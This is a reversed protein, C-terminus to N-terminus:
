YNSVDIALMAIIVSNIIEIELMAICPCNTGDNFVKGYKRLIVDNAFVVICECNVADNAFM